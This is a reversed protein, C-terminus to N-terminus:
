SLSRQKIFSHSYQELRHRDFEPSLDPRMSWALKNNLNSQAMAMCMCGPMTHFFASKESNQKPAHWAEGMKRATLDTPSQRGPTRAFHFCRTRSSDTATVLLGRFASAPNAPLPHFSAQSRLITCSVSHEKSQRSPNVVIQLTAQELEITSALVCSLSPPTQAGLPEGFM